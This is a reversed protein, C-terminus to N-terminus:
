HGLHGMDGGSMSRRIHLRWERSHEKKREEETVKNKEGSRMKLTMKRWSTNRVKRVLDYKRIELNRRKMAIM